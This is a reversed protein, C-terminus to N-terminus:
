ISGPAIPAVPPRNKVCKFGFLGAFATHWGHPCSCFAVGPVVCHPKPAHATAPSAAAAPAALIAIAGLSVAAANRTRRLRNV